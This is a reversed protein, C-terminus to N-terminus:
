GTVAKKWLLTTDSYQGESEATKRSKLTNPALSFYRIFAHLAASRHRGEYGDPLLHIIPIM